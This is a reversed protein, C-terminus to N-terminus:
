KAKAARPKRVVAKSKTPTKAKAKTKTPQGSSPPSFALTEVPTADTTKAEVVPPEVKYPAPEADTSKAASNKTMTHNLWWFAGVAGILILIFIEM